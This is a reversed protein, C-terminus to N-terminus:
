AIQPVGLVEVEEGKGHLVVFEDKPSMVVVVVVLEIELRMRRM